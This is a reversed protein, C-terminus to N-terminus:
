GSTTLVPESSLPQRDAVHELRRLSVLEFGVGGIAAGCLGGAFAQPLQGLVAQISAVLGPDISPELTAALAWLGGGVLGAVGSVVLGVSLWQPVRVPVRDTWRLTALTFLGGTLPACVLALGFLSVPGPPLLHVGLAAVLGAMGGAVLGFLAVLLADERHEYIVSALAGVHLGALACVWVVGWGHDPTVPVTMLYVTGAIAGAVEGILAVRKASYFAAVMAGGAAGALPLQWLTVGAAALCGQAAVFVVGFFGGAIGWILGQLAVM